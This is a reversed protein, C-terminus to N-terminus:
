VTNRVESADSKQFLIFNNNDKVDIEPFLQCM